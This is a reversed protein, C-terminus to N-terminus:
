GFERKEAYIARVVKYRWWARPAHFIVGSSQSRARWIQQRSVLCQVWCSSTLVKSEGEKSEFKRVQKYIKITVGSTQVRYIFYLLLCSKNKLYKLPYAQYKHISRSQKYRNQYKQAFLSIEPVWANQYGPWLLSPIYTRTPIWGTLFWECYLEVNM